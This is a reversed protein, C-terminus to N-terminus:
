SLCASPHREQTSSCELRGMLGRRVRANVVGGIGFAPVIRGMRAVSSKAWDMAVKTARQKWGAHERNYMDLGLLHLPTSLLQLAAPTVIQAASASSIHKQLSDSMHRSLHPAVVPPLNFSAFITLCDRMAFLVFTTTPVPRPVTNAAGYMQTFRSDKYLCLALNTTSTAIFKSPGATVTSAPQARFTSSASDISNAALYTGFYLSFILAFPKSFVFRGPQFLLEEFSSKLSTGLTNRGSANEIIGRDIITIVPAVLIGAATAATLDVGIRPGLNRTNWSSAGSKGTHEIRAAM